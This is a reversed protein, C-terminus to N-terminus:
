FRRSFPNVKRKPKQENIIEIKDNNTVSENVKNDIKNKIKLLMDIKNNKNLKEELEDIKQQLSTNKILLEDIINQKLKLEKNFNSLETIMDNMNDNEEPLLEQLKEDDSNKLILDNMETDNNYNM